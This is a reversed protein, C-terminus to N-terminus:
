QRWTDVCNCNVFIDYIMIVVHICSNGTDTDTDLVHLLCQYHACYVDCKHDNVLFTDLLGLIYSM